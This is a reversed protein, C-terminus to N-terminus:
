LPSGEANDTQSLDTLSHSSASCGETHIDDVVGAMLLIDRRNVGDIEIGLGSTADLEVFQECGGVNDRQVTWESILGTMEDVSVGQSRHLLGGVENIGSTAGTDVLSGQHLSKLRTRNSTCTQINELLLRRNSRVQQRQLVDHQQGM